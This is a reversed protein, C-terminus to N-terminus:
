KKGATSSSRAGQGLRKTNKATYPFMHLDRKPALQALRAITQQSRLVQPHRGRRPALRPRVGQRRGDAARARHLQHARRQRVVAGAELAGRSRRAARSTRAHVGLRRPRLALRQGAPDGGRRRAVKMIPLTPGFTEETMGGDHPRRRRARDARLLPGAGERANGGVLVQAGKAVADTSTRRRRHRAAAPVDDRRGRGLGPGGPAGQRLARSRRPSRRRRVRRLGAGRRLRARDLHVDPRREADLLLRRRERRARPRRRRLVIM